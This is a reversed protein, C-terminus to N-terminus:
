QLYNAFLITGYLVAPLGLGAAVLLDLWMRQGRAKCHSKGSQAQFKTLLNDSFLSKARRSRDSAWM